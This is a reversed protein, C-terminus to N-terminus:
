RFLKVFFTRGFQMKWADWLCVSLITYTEHQNFRTQFTSGVWENYLVILMFKLQKRGYLLFTFYWNRHLFPGNLANKSYFKRGPHSNLLKKIRSIGLFHFNWGFIAFNPSFPTNMPRKGRIARLSFEGNCISFHANKLIKLPRQCLGFTNQGESANLYALFLFVLKPPTKVKDGQLLKSRIAHKARLIRWM